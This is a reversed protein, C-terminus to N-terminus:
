SFFIWTGLKIHYRGTSFSHASYRPSIQYWFTLTCMKVAEPAKYVLVHASFPARALLPLQGPQQHHQGVLCSSVEKFQNRFQVAWLPLKFSWGKEQAKANKPFFFFLVCFTSENYLQFTCCITFVCLSCNCISESLLTPPIQYAGNGLVHM